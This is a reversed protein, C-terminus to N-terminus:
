KRCSTEVRHVADTFQNFDSTVPGRAYPGDTQWASGHGYIWVYQSAAAYAAELRGEFKAPKERKSKDTKTPGLPWLGPAATLNMSAASKGMLQAYDGETRQVSPQMGQAYRSYTQEMGIAVHSWAVSLLGKVFPVALEYRDYPPVKKGAKLKHVGSKIRQLLTAYAQTQDMVDPLIFLTMDPYADHMAQGIARGEQEITTALEPGAAPGGWTPTYPELDLAVGKLKAYKALMAAHKFRTIVADNAKKNNWDHPKYLAVKIFNDTVGSPAYTSQFKAVNQWLASQPDTGVDEKWNDMVNKLFFGQMGVTQGWYAAQEATTQSRYDVGDFMLLKPCAALAVHWPGALLVLLAVLGTTRFSFRHAGGQM